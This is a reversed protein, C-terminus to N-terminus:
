STEQRCLLSVVGVGQATALRQLSSEAPQPDGAAPAGLRHHGRYVPRQGQRKLSQRVREALTPGLVCRAEFVLACGLLFIDRHGM